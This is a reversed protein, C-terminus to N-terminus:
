FWATREVTVDEGADVVEFNRFKSERMNAVLDDADEKSKFSAYLEGAEPDIGNIRLEAAMAADYKTYKIVRFRYITEQYTMPM